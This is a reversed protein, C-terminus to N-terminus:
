TLYNMITVYGLSLEPVSIYSENDKGLLAFLYHTENAFDGFLFSRLGFSSNVRNLCILMNLHLIHQDSYLLSNRLGQEPSFFLFLPVNQQTELDTRVGTYEPGLIHTNIHEKLYDIKISNTIHLHISRTLLNDM